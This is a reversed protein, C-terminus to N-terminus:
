VLGTIPRAQLVSLTGDAFAWEIDMPRGARAEIALCVSGLEHLDADTLTRAAVQAPPVAVTEATSGGVTSGVIMTEKSSVDCALLALTPKALVFSDPTVRGSVVSEGLGWSANIVIRDRSGTVPDATFAVGAVEANVLAMVVVAMAEDRGHLGKLARYGIARASWLSRYCALVATLVAAGDRVGLYTEYLGASSAVSGDESLASSRVAVDRVGGDRLTQYATVIEARVPQPLQAQALREALAAAAARAVKPVRLDPVALAADVLPM